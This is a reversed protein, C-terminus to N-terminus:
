NYYDDEQVRVRESWDDKAMYRQQQQGGVTRSQQELEAQVELAVTRVLWQIGRRVLSDSSSDGGSRSSGSQQFLGGLGQLPQKPPAYEVEYVDYGKDVFEMLVEDVTKLEDCLGRDLADKGFWTEGTAVKDMDLQPRNEKVFNRFLTL